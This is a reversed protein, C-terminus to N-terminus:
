YVLARQDQQEQLVQLERQDQQVLREQQVPPVLLGPQEPLVRQVMLDTLDQQARLM